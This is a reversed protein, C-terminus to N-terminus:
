VDKFPIELFVFHHIISVYFTTFIINKLVLKVLITQSISPVIIKPVFEEKALNLDRLVSNVALFIVLNIVKVDVQRIAVEM